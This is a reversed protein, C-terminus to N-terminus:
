VFLTKLAYGQGKRHRSRLIFNRRQKVSYLRMRNTHAVNPLLVKNPTGSVYPKPSVREPQPLGSTPICEQGRGHELLGRSAAIAEAPWCTLGEKLAGVLVQM